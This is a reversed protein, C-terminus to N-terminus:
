NPSAATLRGLRALEVRARTEIAQVADRLGPDHGAEGEALAALRALRAPDVDGGLLAAQLATLEELLAEGRRRAERDEAEGRGQEQLALLGLPSVSETPAAAGAQRADGAVLRFGGASRGGRATSTPGQPGGIRGVVM